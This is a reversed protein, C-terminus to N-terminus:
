SNSLTLSDRERCVLQLSLTTFAVADVESLQLEVYIHAASIHVTCGSLVVWSDFGLEVFVQLLVDAGKHIM